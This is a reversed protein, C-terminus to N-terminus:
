AGYKRGNEKEKYENDCKRSCVKGKGGAVWGYGQTHKGCVICPVPAIVQEEYKVQNAKM